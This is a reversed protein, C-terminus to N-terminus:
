NTNHQIHSESLVPHAHLVVGTHRSCAFIFHARRPIKIAAQHWLTFSQASASRGKWDCCLPAKVVIHLHHWACGECFFAHLPHPENYFRPSIIAVERNAKCQFHPKRMGFVHFHGSIFM